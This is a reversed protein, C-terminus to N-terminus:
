RLRNASRILREDKRIYYNGLFLFIIAMLPFAAAFGYEAVAKSSEELLTNYYFIGGVLLVNLFITLRNLRIQLIRKKFKFISFFSLIIIFLQGGSLPLTFWPSFEQTSTAMEPFPQHSLNEITHIYFVLSTTESLYSAIPFFFILVGSIVAFFMFVSQIRQLM